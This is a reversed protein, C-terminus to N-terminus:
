KSSGDGTLKKRENKNVKKRENKYIEYKKFGHKRHEARNQFYQSPFETKKEEKDL